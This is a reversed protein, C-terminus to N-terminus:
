QILPHQIIQKKARGGFCERFECLVWFMETCRYAHDTNEMGPTLVEHIMGVEVTDDRPSAERRIAGPSWAALTKEDRDPHHRGQEFALEKIKEFIGEFFFLQDKRITETMGFIGFVEFGESFVEVVLFPDDIAFGGEIAGFPNKLVQASISVPDGDAIVAEGVEM